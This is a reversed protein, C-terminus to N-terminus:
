MFKFFILSLILFFLNRYVGHNKKNEVKSKRKNEFSLTLFFLIGLLILCVGEVRSYSGNLGFIVPFSLIIVYFM